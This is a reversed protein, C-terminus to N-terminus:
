EALMDEGYNEIVSNELQEQYVTLLSELEEESGDSYVWEEALEIMASSADTYCKNGAPCFLVTEVDTADAAVSLGMLLENNQYSDCNIAPIYCAIYGMELSWRTNATDDVKTTDTGNYWWEIFKEAAWAEDDTASTTIYFNSMDSLAYSNIDEGSQVPVKAIGYNIGASDLGAKLWGGNIMMGIQGALMMSDIDKEKPNNGTDYLQYFYNLGDKLADNNKLNVKYKGDTNKDIVLGGFRQTFAGLQAQYCYYLGSGFTNKSSDTMKEAYELYEDWTVPPMEPDLGAAVFLDKNYFLCMQAIQFPMGYLEGEESYCRSLYAELFDEKKLGTSVFIDDIPRLYGVYRNICGTDGLILDAADGTPLSSQLMENVSSTITMDVTIGYENEENFQHVLETLTDGDSGVWANWFTITVNEPIGEMDEVADEEQVHDSVETVDEDVVNEAVDQNNGCGVAFVAMIAALLMSIVRKKM